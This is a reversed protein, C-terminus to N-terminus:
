TPMSDIAEDPVLPLDIAHLRRFQHPPNDRLETAYHTECLMRFYGWDLLLAKVVVPAPCPARRGRGSVVAWV